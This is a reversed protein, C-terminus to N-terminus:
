AFLKRASYYATAVVLTLLIGTWTVLFDGIRIGFYGSLLIFVAAVAGIAVLLGALKMTSTFLSCAYALMVKEKWHDSVHRAGLTRIAKRAVTSIDSIVGPLPIRVAFEVLIVCLVTTLVWSM